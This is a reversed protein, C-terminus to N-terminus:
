VALVRLDIAIHRSFRLELGVGGDFGMYNYRSHTQDVHTVEAGSVGFGGFLYLQVRNRPNVFFMPNIFFATESRDEGYFDQGRLFDIGFDIAFRPTLKPRVSFGLGGMGADPSANHGMTATELRIQAGWESRRGVAPPPPPPPADYEPAPSPLPPLPGAEGARAGSSIALGLFTVLATLPSRM